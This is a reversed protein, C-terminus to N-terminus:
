RPVGTSDTREFDTDDATARHRPRIQACGQCYLRDRDDSTFLEEPDFGLDEADFDGPTIGCETCETTSM